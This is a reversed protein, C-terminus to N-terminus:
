PGEVRALIRRVAERFIAPEPLLSLILYAEEPFDFFYGPHVLVDDERLLRLVLDDEPLVAPVRLVAYWGGDSALVECSSRPGVAGRLASRNDLVRRRVEERLDAGIALLREAALQVPTSVTLYTDAIWDLRELAAAVRDEPGGAVIWALKMQPLACSKSLGGLTFGLSRAPSGGAPPSLLSVPPRGRAEIGSRAGTEGTADPADLYDFFVEDSVIAVEGAACLEDLADREPATLAGGTPNNPNVLLLARPRGGRDGIARELADLDIEWRGAYRLPYPRARLGELSALNEFLPYGPRPVLVADGPDALLKFLLGYAESTGATLVIRDEGVALGRRGYDSAIAARAGPLGRAGPEYRALGPDDLAAAITGATPAIGARTPNSETLDLLPKGELRRAALLRALANPSASWDLRGSFMGAPYRRGRREPIGTKRDPFPKHM